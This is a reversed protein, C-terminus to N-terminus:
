AAVRIPPQQAVYQGTLDFTERGALLDSLLWHSREVLAAAIRPDDQEFAAELITKSKYRQWAAHAEAATDFLGLHKRKGDYCCRTQFRGTSRHWVVGLPWDGRAAASDTLLLNTAQSVFCCAELGYVKNGPILLDKDLQQGQWPQTQMWAKFTMFSRWEPAVSCGIYTPHREHYKASYCRKLMNMWACYFPCMQQKGAVTPQTAYDADNVGVGYVLKAPYQANM